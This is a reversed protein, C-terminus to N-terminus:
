GRFASKEPENWSRDRLSRLLANQTTNRTTKISTRSSMLDTDIEQNEGSPKSM